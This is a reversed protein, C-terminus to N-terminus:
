IISIISFMQLLTFDRRPLFVSPSTCYVFAFIGTTLKLPVYFAAVCGSLPILVTLFVNLWNVHLPWNWATMRTETVHPHAAM